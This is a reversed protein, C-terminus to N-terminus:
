GGALWPLAAECVASQPARDKGELLEEGEQRVLEVFCDVLEGQWQQHKGQDLITLAEDVPMGRRYARDSTMADFADAVAIIRSELPIEEGKLGKPYGLGNFREHHAEIIPLVDHLARVSEVIRRGTSPHEKMKEYEDPTLPGPKLLISDPMGIKGVDHLLAGYRLREIWLQDKAQAEGIRVSYKTVQDSHGRTYPDRADIAAALARITEVNQQKLQGYLRGNELAVAVQSTFVELLQQDKESLEAQDPPWTLQLVGVPRDQVRLLQVAQNDAGHGGVLRHHARLLREDSRRVDFATAGGPAISAPLGKQALLRLVHEEPDLLSLALGAPRFRSWLQNVFESVQSHVDLNSTITRSLQMLAVMENLKEAELRLARLERMELCTKVTRELEDPELPKTLYDFAGMKLAQKASEISGFATIMITDIEPHQERIQRMLALGNMQPMSLDTLVIDYRLEGLRELAQVGHEVADVHYHQMRLLRVCVNRVLSDDEVVLLRPADASVLQM